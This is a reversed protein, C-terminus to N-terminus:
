CRLFTYMYMDRHTTHTHTLLTWPMWSLDNPLEYGGRVGCGSCEVDEDPRWSCRCECTHVCVEFVSYPPEWSYDQPFTVPLTSSLSLRPYRLHLHSTNTEEGEWDPAMSDTLSSVMLGLLFKSRSESRILNIRQVMLGQINM